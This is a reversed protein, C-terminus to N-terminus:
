DPWQAGAAKCSRSGRIIVAAAWISGPALAGDPLFFVAVSELARGLSTLRNVPSMLTQPSQIFLLFVVRGDM